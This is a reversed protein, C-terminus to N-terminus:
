CLAEPVCPSCKSLFRNAFHLQEGESTKSRQIHIQESSTKLSHSFQLVSLNYTVQRQYSLIILLDFWGRQKMTTGESLVQPTM